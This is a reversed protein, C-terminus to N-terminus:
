FFHKTNFVYKLHKISSENEKEKARLKKIINSHQLQQKSLKEGEHRLEKITEDKENILTELEGKSMRTAADQRAQELQKRLIDKERIAQQFKRELASLRQTYEETVLNIDASDVQKSLINELQHKLEINLEQLEANRRTTDILKAERAELIETMESVRKLLRDIESSHSDDSHSSTESLERNHGKTKTKASKGFLMEIASTQDGSCRFKQLKAPSQRSGSQVSSSDGNPSSIIEIDSSTTTELEDGSTHGSTQESGIKVLDSRSESSIPSQDRPPMDLHSISISDTGDSQYSALLNESLNLFQTKSTNEPSKEIMADAIMNKLYSSKQTENSMEESSSEFEASENEAILTRDSQSGEDNSESQLEINQLSQSSSEMSPIDIIKVSDLLNPLNQASGSPQPQTNILSQASHSLSEKITNSNTITPLIPQSSSMTTHSLPLHMASRSPAQTIPIDGISYSKDPSLSLESNISEAMEKGGLKQTRNMEFKNEGGKFSFPELVTADTSESISMYSISDDAISQEEEELVEPIIEVSDPSLKFDDEKFTGHDIPSQFPSEFEEDTVQSLRHSNTAESNIIEVSSPSTLSDPLVEVSDSAPKGGQASSSTSISYAASTVESEPTTTCGTEGLVEVSESSNKGSESSIVSLRNLYFSNPREKHRILVTSSTKNDGLLEVLGTTDNQPSTQLIENAILAKDKEEDIDVDCSSLRSRISSEGDESIERVVLKSKSFNEDISGIDSSDDALSDVSITHQVTKELPNIEGKPSEFFSGTFSGWLSATMNNIKTTTKTPSKAIVSSSSDIETINTGPKMPISQSQNIGWASFFDDSNPDVPVAATQQSTDQNIDEDKIDLVKDISKQAEKLATKALSAFGSTDFWSM